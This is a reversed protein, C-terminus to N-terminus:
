QTFGLRKLNERIAQELRVSETFQEELTASLRKMKEESIGFNM